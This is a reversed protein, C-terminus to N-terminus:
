KNTSLAALTRVGHLTKSKSDKFFEGLKLFRQSVRFSLRRLTSKEFTLEYDAYNYHAVLKSENWDHKKKFYYIIVSNNRKNQNSENKTEDNIQEKSSILNNDGVMQKYFKICRDIHIQILNESFLLKESIEHIWTDIKQHVENEEMLEGDIELISGMVDALQFTSNIQMPITETVLGTYRGKSRTKGNSNFPILCCLLKNTKEM